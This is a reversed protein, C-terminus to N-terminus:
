ILIKTKLVNVKTRMRYIEPDTTKVESVGRDMKVHCHKCLEKFDERKRYYYGSINAWEYRLNPLGCEECKSAKGYYKRIWTHKANYGAKEGKWNWHLRGRSNLRVM